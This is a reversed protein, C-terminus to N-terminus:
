LKTRLNLLGTQKYVNDRHGITIILVKRKSTNVHYILRYKDFSLRRFGLLKGRLPKGAKNPNVKLEKEIAEEVDSEIEEPLAPFDKKAYRKSLEM